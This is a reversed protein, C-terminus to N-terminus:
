KQKLEEESSSPIHDHDYVVEEYKRYRNWAM